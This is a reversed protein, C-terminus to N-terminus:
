AASLLGLIIGTLAMRYSGPKTIAFIGIVFAPLGLVLGALQGPGTFPILAFGLRLVFALLGLIGSLTGLRNAIGAETCQGLM